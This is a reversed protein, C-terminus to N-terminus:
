IEVSKGFFISIALIEAADILEERTEELLKIRELIDDEKVLHSDYDPVTGETPGFTNWSYWRQADFTGVFNLYVTEDDFLNLVLTPMKKIEIGRM